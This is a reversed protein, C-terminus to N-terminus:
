RRAVAHEAKERGRRDGHGADHEADPQEQAVRPRGEHEVARQPDQQQREEGDIQRRGILLQLRRERGDMGFQFVGAADEARRPQLDSRWIVAGKSRVPTIAVQHKMKM